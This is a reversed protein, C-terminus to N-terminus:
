QPPAERWHKNLLRVARSYTHDNVRWADELTMITRILGQGRGIQEILKGARFLIIALTVAWILNTVIQAGLFLAYLDGARMGLQTATDTIMRVTTSDM